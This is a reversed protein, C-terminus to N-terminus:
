ANQAAKMEEFAKKYLYVANKSAEDHKVVPAPYAQVKKNKKYKARISADGWKHLDAPSVDALEPIYQKIYKGELDFKKSQIWPNFPPRFYPVADPGTSSVWGWGATNNFVDADVLNQYFFKMGKRWDIMFYKTLVCGTLMRMRNHQWGIEKLQRQAADVLPFGTMGECWATWLKEDDSWPIREDVGAQLATGRQLEPNHSYIKLYFDRFVLQRILDHREGFLEATRWYMERISVTGFKLHASMKTTGAKLHMFNRTENYDKKNKIKELGILGVLRGGREALKENVNYLTNLKSISFKFSFKSQTFQSAEFEFNSEPKRIEYFKQIHKFFISLVRYPKHPGDKPHHWADKIPLLGYDEEKIIEVNNSEAWEEIEGDRERAYVSYDENYAIASFNVVEKIKKITELNGGMFLHLKGDVEEKLQRGLDNLSECMFQVSPHSFWENKEPDIQEPPFVFVPLIRYGDKIAQILSTNDILRLDRRFIFLAIKVGDDESKATKKRKQPPSSM